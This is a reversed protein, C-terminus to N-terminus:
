QIKALEVDFLRRFEDPHAQRLRSSSRAQAYAPALGDALGAQYERRREAPYKRGLAVVARGYARMRAKRKERNEPVSYWGMSRVTM